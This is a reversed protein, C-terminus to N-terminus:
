KAIGAFFLRLRMGAPRRLSILPSRSVEKGSATGYFLHVCFGSLDYSHQMSSTRQWLAVCSVFPLEQYRSIYFRQRDPLNSDM